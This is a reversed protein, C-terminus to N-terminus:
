CTSIIFIVISFLAKAVGLSRAFLVVVFISTILVLAYLYVKTIALGQIGFILLACYTKSFKLLLHRSASWIIVLWLYIYSERLGLSTWLFVSPMFMFILLLWLAYRNLDRQAWYILFCAIYFLITSQLRLVLYDPMGIVEFFKAPLHIIQLLLKNDTPWSLQDALLYNRSYLNKFVKLYGDEDPGFATIRGLFVQFVLHLGFYATSVWFWVRHAKYIEFLSKYDRRMTFKRGVIKM